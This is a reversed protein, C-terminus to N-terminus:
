CWVSRRCSSRRSASSVESATTRTSKTANPTMGVCRNSRLGVPSLATSRGATISNRAHFLYCEATKLSKLGNFGLAHLQAADNAQGAFDNRLVPRHAGEDVVIWEVTELIQM